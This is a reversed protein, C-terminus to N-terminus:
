MPTHSNIESIGSTPFRGTYETFKDHLVDPQFFINPRYESYVIAPTEFSNLMLISPPFELCVLLATKSLIDTNVPVPKSLNTHAIKAEALKHNLSM